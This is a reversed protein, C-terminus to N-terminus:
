KSRMVVVRQVDQQNKCPIEVLQDEYGPLSFMFRGTEGERVTLRLRGYRDAAIM